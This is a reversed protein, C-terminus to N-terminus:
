DELTIARILEDNPLTTPARLPEAKKIAAIRNLEDALTDAYHRDVSLSTSFLIKDSPDNANVVYVGWDESGDVKMVEFLSV